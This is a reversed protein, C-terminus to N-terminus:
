DVLAPLVRETFLRLSRWGEDVPMGGALPHLVLSDLGQGVCEDPTLIRYVGEARLEEVTTAASRM